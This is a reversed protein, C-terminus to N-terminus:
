EVTFEAYYTVEFYDGAGRLNMVEKGVRYEGAPLKGYTQSWNTGWEVSGELEINWAEQTWVLEDSKAPYAVWEDGDKVEIVYPAGSFLEVVGWGGSQTCVITCGEATVDKATLTVGWPDYVDLDSPSTRGEVLDAPRLELDSPTAAPTRSGGAACGTLLLACLVILLRKM